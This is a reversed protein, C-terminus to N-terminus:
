CSVAILVEAITAVLLWIVGKYIRVVMYASFVVTLSFCWYGVQKWLLRGLGFASREHFGLRLLGFFMILLLSIDTALTVLVNLETIHLNTLV